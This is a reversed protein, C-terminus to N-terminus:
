KQLDIEHMLEEFVPQNRFGKQAIESFHLGPWFNGEIIIPGESLIAVDWAILRVQPLCQAAKIVLQRAETYFPIVFDEFATDTLPHNTFVRGTGEDFDTFAERFLVGTDKDMGVFLGGKSINDLFGDDSGTRLFANLVQTVGNRNTFTDIRVTNVSHPNIKQLDVHQVLNNQYLFGSQIVQDFIYRVKKNDGQLERYFLKFIGKGGWSDDKKKIILSDGQWLEENKLTLLFDHLQKPTNIQILQNKKFFLSNQSWAMSKLFPVDRQSFFLESFQKNFLISKYNRDNSDWCRKIIKHTLVFDSSDKINKRFLYKSFYQEATKPRTIKFFMFEYLIQWLPKSQSVKLAKIIKKPISLLKM